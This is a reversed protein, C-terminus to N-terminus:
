CGVRREVRRASKQLNQVANGPTVCLPVNLKSAGRDGASGVQVPWASGQRTAARRGPAWQAVEVQALM